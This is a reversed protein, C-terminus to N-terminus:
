MALPEPTALEFRNVMDNPNLGSGTAPLVSPGDDAMAEVSWNPLPPPPNLGMESFSSIFGTFPM